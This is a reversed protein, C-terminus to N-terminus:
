AWVNSIFQPLSTGLRTCKIACAACQRAEPEPVIAFGKADSSGHEIDLLLVYRVPFDCEFVPDKFTLNPWVKKSVEVANLAIQKCAVPMTPIGPLATSLAM